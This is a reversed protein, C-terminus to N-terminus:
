VVPFDRSFCPQVYDNVDMLDKTAFKARGILDILEEADGLEREFRMEVSDTILEEARPRM